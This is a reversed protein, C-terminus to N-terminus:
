PRDGYYAYTNELAQQPKEELGDAVIDAWGFNLIHLPETLNEKEKQALPFVWLEVSCFPLQAEEMIRRLELLSTAATELTVADTKVELTITGYEPSLESIDYEGDIQM